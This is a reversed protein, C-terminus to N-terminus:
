QVDSGGRTPSEILDAITIVLVPVTGPSILGSVDDYTGLEYLIFDNPYKFMMNERDNTLQHHLARIASGRSVSFFPVGYSASKTDLVCFINAIM